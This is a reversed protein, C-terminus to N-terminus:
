GGSPIKFVTFLNITMFDFVLFKSLIQSFVAFILAFFKLIAGFGNKRNELKTFQQLKKSQYIKITLKKYHSSENQAM